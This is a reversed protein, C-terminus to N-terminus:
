KGADDMGDFVAGIAGGVAKSADAAAEGVTKGAGAAVEGVTKGAGVAAEGVTKAANIAAGGITKAATIAAGGVSKTADVATGGVNKTAVVAAGGVAKAADLAADVAEAAGKGAEQIAKGAEKVAETVENNAKDNDEGNNKDTDAKGDEPAKDSDKPAKDEDDGGFISGIAGGIAKAADVAAEGVAKAADVAAEGVAKAADVAVEGADKVVGAAFGAVDGVAEAAAKVTGFSIQRLIQGTAELGTAGGSKHGIDRLEITPLPVVAGKGDWVAVRVMANTFLFHDIVVKRGEEKEEEPKEKEKEEAKDLKDLIAKLNTHGLGKIEYSVEPDAIVIERIHIPESAKLLSAVDLDLQFKSLEFVNADFGEPPGVVMGDVSVIGSFVRTHINSIAVETGLLSPAATVVAKRIISGLAFQLVLFLVILIGVIWLVAKRLRHRPKAPPPNSM